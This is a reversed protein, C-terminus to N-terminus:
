KGTRGKTSEKSNFPLPNIKSNVIKENEQEEIPKEKKYRHIESGITILNNWTRIELGDKVEDLKM